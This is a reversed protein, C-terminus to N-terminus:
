KKQESQGLVTNVYADITKQNLIHYFGEKPNGKEDIEKFLNQSALLLKKSDIGKLVKNGLDGESVKNKASTSISGNVYYDHGEWASWSEEENMSKGDNGLTIEINNLKDKWYKTIAEQVKTDEKYLKTHGLAIATTSALSKEASTIFKDQFNTYAEVQDTDVGVLMTKATKEKISKLTDDTQGGAVPMIVDAKEQVLADSITKGSGVLFSGTFWKSDNADSGSQNPLTQQSAVRDAKVKYSKDEDKLGLTKKAENDIKNYWAIAAEFGLMFSDVASNNHVGGYTALKVTNSSEDYNSNNISWVIAAVGAYFGSVDGRYILGIQNDFKNYSSDLIIASGDNAKVAEAAKYAGEVAHHFGPLVLNKAGAKVAENYAQDLSNLDKPEIAAVSSLRDADAVGKAPYYVESLFKNAGSYASENFSKDNLKGADTILYIDRFVKQTKGCAIATAASSAVVASSMLISILKKM